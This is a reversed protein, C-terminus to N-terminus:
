GRSGSSHSDLVGLIPWGTTRALDRIWQLRSYPTLSRAVVLLACADDPDLDQIDALRLVNLTKDAGATISPALTLLAGAEATTASSGVPTAKARGNLSGAQRGRLQDTMRTALEAVDPSNREGVLVLTNVKLSAAGRRIAVLTETDSAMTLLSFTRDRVHPELRGLWRLWRRAWSGRTQAPRWNGLVPVDLERAFARGDAIRPRAVEVLAAALLGTVLGAIVGLIIKTWFTSHVRTASYALSIVSASSDIVSAVQLQRLTASLDALEQDVTSLQATTVVSGPQGGAGAQAQVLKQRQGYLRTQNAELEAVLAQQRGGQQSIFGVVATTLASSLAQATTASRDTVSIDTIASSGLLTVSIERSLSVADRGGIRAALRAQEIIATSTAIGKVRNLVSDAETTSGITASSAQLRATAVYSVSGSPRTAFLVALPVVVAVVVLRLHGVVIRRFVENLEM